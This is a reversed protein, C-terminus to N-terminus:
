LVKVYNLQTSKNDRQSKIKGKIRFADGNNFNKGFWFDVFSDGMKAQVKYRNFEPNYRTSIVIVEGEVKEGERGSLQTSDRLQNMFEKRALDREYVSPLSSIVAISMRDTELISEKTALGMATKQFENLEGALALFMYSRFHRVIEEARDRDEERVTFLCQDGRAWSSLLVKNATVITKQNGQEDWEGLTEKHYGGNVRHVAVAAAFLDLTNIAM